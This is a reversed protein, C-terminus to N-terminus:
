PVELEVRWVEAGTEADLAAVTGLPTSVYLRGAAYVPTVEFAPPKGTGDLRETSNRADYTWAIALRQVNDPTIREPATRAFAALSILCCLLISTKMVCRQSSGGCGVM